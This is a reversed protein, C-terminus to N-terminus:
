HEVVRITLRHDYTDVTLVNGHRRIREPGTPLLIRGVVHGTARDIAYLYDLEATFGYGSVIVENLLVFNDANAVLAPSRWHLKKTKLDIANLYANLGYSSKAYTPHATEVYLIGTDTEKAWVVQEYVFERDGPVIRPPRAYNRFDFAFRGPARVIHATSGDPGEILLGRPKPSPTLRGPDLSSSALIQFRVRGPAPERAPANFRPKPLVTVPEGAAAVTGALVLATLVVVLHRV